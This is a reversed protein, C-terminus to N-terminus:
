LLVEMALAIEREEIEPELVNAGATGAFSIDQVRRAVLNKAELFVRWSATKYGIYADLGHHVPRAVLGALDRTEGGRYTHRLGAEVRKREYALRTAVFEAPRGPLKRGRQWNIRSANRADQQSYESELAWYGRTFKARTRWGRTWTGGIALVRANVASSAVPVAANKAEEAFGAASIEAFEGVRAWPGAAARWGEEVPLNPNPLLLAGDGFVESSRPVRAFRKAELNMGGAFRRPSTLEAGAEWTRYIRREGTTVLNARDRAYLAAAEVEGEIWLAEPLNVGWRVEAEERRFERSGVAIQERKAGEAALALTPRGWAGGLLTAQGGWRLSRNATAALTPQAPAFRTRRSFAFAAVTYDAAAYALNGEFQRARTAGTRRHGARRDRNEGDTDALFHWPGIKYGLSAFDSDRRNQFTGTTDDALDFPTNRNDLYALQARDRSAGVTLEAEGEGISSWSRLRATQARGARLYAQALSERRPSLEFVSVRRELSVDDLKEMNKLPIGLANRPIAREVAGIGAGVSVERAPRLPRGLRRGEIRLPALSVTAPIEEASAAFPALWAGGVAVLIFFPIKKRM